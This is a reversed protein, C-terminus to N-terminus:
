QAPADTRFPVMPLGAQNYLPAEPNNAWAYRAASPKEIGDARLRITNGKIEADAWVFKGNEGAIAFGGIKPSDSVLGGDAHDFHLVAVDGHVEMQKFNPGNSVVDREYAISEAALGLRTGVDQKNRPHIDKAAGIDITVALGTMPDNAATMAQAERLEAWDSEIPQEERARYNALQVVLFPFDGQDWRTRWDNIMTPLLTRYQEPRGANSEGQYWIAGRIGYPILPAIMQNYLLTPKNPSIPNHPKQPLVYEAKIKWNGALSIKEAAQADVPAIYMAEATGGWLGGQGQADMVRIAITNEGAKVREGPVRYDRPQSWFEVIEKELNGTAGVQEGNFWTVDVEDIPGPRLVLDRGAWAAPVDITKRLWVIGDLDKYGAAEWNQPVSMSGWEDDNLEPAAWAAAAELDAELKYMTPYSEKYAQWKLAYDAKISDINKELEDLGDIAKTFEPLKAKLAEESTWTEAITGGWNTSILGVPRDLNQYLHRGFFYGVASFKSVTDPSCIVWEGVLDEQPRFAMENKVDFYRIEPYDAAAAEEIANDSNSVIWEMNSQGSCIWVEGVLVDEFTLSEGSSSDITMSQGDRIMNMEPLALKWKGANDAIAEASEGAFSVSVTAGPDAWGWVPINGDQQLVM